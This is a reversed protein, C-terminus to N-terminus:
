ESDPNFRVISCGYGSTTPLAPMEGQLAAVVADDIYNQTAEKRAWNVDDPAGRYRLVGDADVVFLHPTTAAGYLDAVQHDPDLLVPAAGRAEAAERLQDQTENANSAIWWVEVAPGWGPISQELLGDAREAWPCEASWFNLVVVRGRADGLSHTKGGLDLLEFRPAPMGVNLDRLDLSDV